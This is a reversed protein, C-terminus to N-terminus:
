FFQPHLHGTILCLSFVIHAFVILAFSFQYGLHCYGMSCQAEHTFMLYRASLFLHIQSDSKLQPAYQSQHHNHHYLDFALTNM